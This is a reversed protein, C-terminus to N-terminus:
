SIVKSCQKASILSIATPSAVEPIIYLKIGMTIIVNHPRSEYVVHHKWFYPQGLLFDCVELPYIECLLVDKFHKIDYPLHCQQSVFLDRGQCLWGITYPQPHLTMPLDLQKIVKVLIWKKHSYRDVIFHLSAGKVM